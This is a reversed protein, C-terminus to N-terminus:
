GESNGLTLTHACLTSWAECAAPDDMLVAMQDAVGADEFLGRNSEWDARCADILGAMGVFNEDFWGREDDNLSEWATLMTSRLLPVDVEALRNEAAFHVCACAAEAQRLSSGATGPHFSTVWRFYGEAFEEASPVVPREGSEGEPAPLVTAAEDAQPAATPEDAPMPPVAARGLIVSTAAALLVLLIILLIVRNKKM